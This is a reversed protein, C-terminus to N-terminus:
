FQLQFIKEATVWDEPTDIDCVRHPPYKYAFTNSSITNRLELFADRTGWYFQGADHYYDELDQSRKVISNSDVISTYGDSKIRVARQIPFAFKTATFIISAEKSRSLWDRFPM